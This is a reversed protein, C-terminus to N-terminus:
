RGRGIYKRILRIIFFLGILSAFLTFATPIASFLIEGIDSLVSDLTSTADSIYSTEAYATKGVLSLVFALMLIGINRKNM